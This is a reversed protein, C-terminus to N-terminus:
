SGKRIYVGLSGQPYERPGKSEDTDIQNTMATQALIWVYEKGTLKLEKAVRFMRRAQNRFFDGTIKHHDLCIYQYGSIYRSVISIIATLLLSCSFITKLDM